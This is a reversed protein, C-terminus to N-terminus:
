RIVLIVPESSAGDATIVLGYIGATLGAPVQFNVQYLGAFGPTLGAYAPQVSLAGVWVTVPARAELLAPVPPAPQGAELTGEVRGLGTLYVTLFEGPAAPAGATVIRGGARVVAPQPGDKTPISFVAPATGAIVVPAESSGNATTVRVRGLGLVDFPLQANLQGSSAYLLPLRKGDLTVNAGGLDVPLPLSGAVGEEPAL